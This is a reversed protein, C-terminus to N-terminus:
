YTYMVKSTASILSNTLLYVCKQPKLNNGILRHRIQLPYASFSVCILAKYESLAIVISIFM